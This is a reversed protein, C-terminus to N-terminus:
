LGRRAAVLVDLVFKGFAKHLRLNQMPLIEEIYDEKKKRDRDAEGVLSKDLCAVVARSYAEGAMHPLQEKAVVLLADRVDTEHRVNRFGQESRDMKHAQQWCGIELLIVGLGYVDHEMCFYKSPRGWREPHTYILRDPHFERTCASSMKDNRTHDFGFIYPKAPDFKSSRPMGQGKGEPEIVDEASEEFQTTVTTQPAKNAPVSPHDVQCFFVVEKSNFSKHLWGVAHFAFIARALAIAMDLRRNLSLCKIRSLEEHLTTHSYNTLAKDMSLSEYEDSGQIIPVRFVLGVVNNHPEDLYGVFPALHFYPDKAQSLLASLHQVERRTYSAVPPASRYEIVVVARGYAGYWLVGPQHEAGKGQSFVNVSGSPLPRFDTITKEMNSGIELLRLRAGESLNLFRADNDTLLRELTAASSFSPCLLLNSQISQCVRDNWSLLREILERAENELAMTSLSQAQAAVTITEPQQREQLDHSIMSQLRNYQSHQLFTQIREAQLLMEDVAIDSVSRPATNKLWNGLRRMALGDPRQSLSITLSLLAPPATRPRDRLPQSAQVPRLTISGEGEALYFHHPDAFVEEDTATKTVLRRWLDYVNVQHLDGLMRGM